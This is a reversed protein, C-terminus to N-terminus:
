PALVGARALALALALLVTAWCLAKLAAELPSLLAARGLPRRSGDAMVLSGEVEVVRRRLERAPTSLSRQAWSLAFAALAALVAPAGVTGTQAFYATVVPFAGWAAAFGVGNHLRGGALELNYGVVLAAGVVVFAVLWPGVRAVGLGGLAVAGALAASGAAALQWPPIATGLPRGMMEDLAHAAVGVGLFFAVLTAVLTAVGLTPALAAGIVVYSLHWATYPPHLVSWWDRWGGATSAYFAAGVPGPRGGGAAPRRGEPM